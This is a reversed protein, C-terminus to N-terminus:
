RWGEHRLRYLENIKDDFVRLLIQKRLVESDSDAGCRIMKEHHKLAEVLLFTVKREDYSDEKILDHAMEICHNRKKRFKEENTVFPRIEWGYPNYKITM